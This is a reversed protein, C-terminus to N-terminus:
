AGFFVYSRSDGFMSEAYEEDLVLIHLFLANTNKGFPFYLYKNQIIFKQLTYKATQVIGGKKSFHLCNCIFFRLNPM